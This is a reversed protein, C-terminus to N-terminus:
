KRNLVSFLNLFSPPNDSKRRNNRWFLPQLNWLEDPGSPNIHDIEWGYTTMQGYESYRMWSGHSDLRYESSDYGIVTQGKQWVALKRSDGFLWFPPLGFGSNGISGM